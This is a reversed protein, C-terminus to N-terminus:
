IRGSRLNEDLFKNLEEQELPSLPYLKSRAAKADPILDIAHDWVHPEPLRDFSTKEFVDVFDTYPGRLINNLSNVKKKLLAQDELERAHQNAANITYIPGYASIDAVYIRGDYGFGDDIEDDPTSM